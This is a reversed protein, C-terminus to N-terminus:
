GPYNVGELGIPDPAPSQAGAGEWV